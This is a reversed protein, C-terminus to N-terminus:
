LSSNPHGDILFINNVEYKFNWDEKFRLKKEIERVDGLGNEGKYVNLFDNFLESRYM